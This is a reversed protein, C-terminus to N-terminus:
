FIAQFSPLHSKRACIFLWKGTCQNTHTQDRQICLSTWLDCCKAIFINLSPSVRFLLSQRKLPIKPNYCRLGKLKAKVTLMQSVQSAQRSENCGKWINFSDRSASCTSILGMVQHPQSVFPPHSKPLAPGLDAFMAPPLPSGPLERLCVTGFSTRKLCPPEWAPNRYYANWVAMALYTDQCERGQGSHRKSNWVLAAGNQLWDAPLSARALRM